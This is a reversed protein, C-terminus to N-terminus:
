PDATWSRWGSNIYIHIKYTGGVNSVKMDGETGSGSPVATEVNLNYRGNTISWLDELLNNLEILSADNIETIKSPKSIRYAELNDLNYFIAMGGCFLFVTFILVKM